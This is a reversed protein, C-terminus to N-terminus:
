AQANIAALIGDWLAYRAEMASQVTKACEAWKGDDSGCLDILMQMAMPTHQEGDVEIHRALYDKFTVLANDSDDIQIVQQFMEPILDERGFAFAAAQCYVPASEIINWTAAVFDAAPRPAAALTLADTVRQGSRLEEVFAAIPETKAGAHAMGRLYLEFHSIYGDGLEDSEEVLVIENILRRSATPGEPVWPVHVCTLNRQLNKLLSMFDWVAFVHHEMFVAADHLTNLAHYVPHAVIKNREQEIASQLDNLGPHSEDWHYRSSAM